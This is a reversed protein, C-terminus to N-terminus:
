EEFLALSATFGHIFNQGGVPGLEGQAFFGALPIPGAEGRVARADHDPEPFLRTGRGNCSFLLGGAPRREHAHLDLRLLAHLDEDASGADRVHFQVTQGVRVPETLVLAGTAQEVGRVNRVLFDGRQFEGQYENIVLGVHLGHRFLQQEEPGLSQYLQQLQELPPRGGLELIVDGRARTVVMHRGIPRCGQSVITRLGLAGQLLVGVAGQDHAKEGLLLRCDGPGGIGSAMGGLVPVGPVDEAMRRLFLDVPFTFPDGLLLVASRAPAFSEAKAGAPAAGAELLADPWGLLSPGDATRELVLHFPTMSVRGAWRALWLSLAPGGEVERDNGIVAEAVCGLLCGPRLRQHLARALQRASARHHASFFVVALDPAAGPAGAQGCVEEAAREPEPLTSLAAAFPM